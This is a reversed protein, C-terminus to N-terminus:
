LPWQQHYQRIITELRAGKLINWFVKYVFYRVLVNFFVIRICYGSHLLYWIWFSMPSIGQTGNKKIRQLPIHFITVLQSWQFSFKPLATECSQSKSSAFREYFPNTADSIHMARVIIMEWSARIHMLFGDNKIQGQLPWHFLVPNCHILLAQWM